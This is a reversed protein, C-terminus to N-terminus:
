FTSTQTHASKTQMATIHKGDQVGPKMENPVQTPTAIREETYKYSQVCQVSMALWQVQLEKLTSNSPSSPVPFLVPVYKCKALRGSDGLGEDEDCESDSDDEEIDYVGVEEDVSDSEHVSRHSVPLKDVGDRSCEDVEDDIVAGRPSGPPVRSRRRAMQGSHAFNCSAAEM